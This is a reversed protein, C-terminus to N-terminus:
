ELTSTPQWTSCEYDLYNHPAWPALGTRFMADAVSLAGLTREAVRGARALTPFGVAGLYAAALDPASVVLDPGLGDPPVLRPEGRGGARVRRPEM